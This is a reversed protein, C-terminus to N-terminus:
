EEEKPLEPIECWHTVAYDASEDWSDVWYHPDKEDPHIKRLTLRRVELSGENGLVLIEKGLEPLRDKVSIWETQYHGKASDYGQHFARSAAEHIHKEVERVSLSIPKDAVQDMADRGEDEACKEAYAECKAAYKYNLDSLMDYWREAKAKYAEFERTLQALEADKAIRLDVLKSALKVLKDGRKICEDHLEVLKCDKDADAVQEMAAKYGALFAAKTWPNAGLIESEDAINRIAAYEEAMEEPTKM